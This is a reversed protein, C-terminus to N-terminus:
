TRDIPATNAIMPPKTWQNGRNEPYVRSSVQAFIWKVIINTPTLM